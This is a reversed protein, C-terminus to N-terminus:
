TGQFSDIMATGRPGAVSDAGGPGTETQVTAPNGAAQVDGAPRDASSLHQMMLNLQEDTHRSARQQGSDVGLTYGFAAAALVLVILWLVKSSGSGSENELVM